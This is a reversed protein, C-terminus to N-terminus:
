EDLLTKLLGILHERLDYSDGNPNEQYYKEYAVVVYNDESLKGAVFDRSAEFFRDYEEGDGSEDRVEYWIDEIQVSLEAVDGATYATVPQQNPTLNADAERKQQEELEKLMKRLQERQKERQKRAAEEAM